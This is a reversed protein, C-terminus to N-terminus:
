WLLKVKKVHSNLMAVDAINIKGDNNIDAKNLEENTLIKVKKVHSNLMAVDAINVKGDGNIDGLLEGNIISYYSFHNTVFKAYKQNDIIEIKSDLLTYPNEINNPDINYVNVKGLFDSPVPLYVIVDGNPKIEQKGENMLKIDFIQYKGNNNKGPIKDIIEVLEKNSELSKDINNIELSVNRPIVNLSAEIKIGTNVDSKKVIITQNDMNCVVKNNKLTELTSVTNQNELDIYNNSLNINNCNCYNNEPNYSTVYKLDNIEEIKNYSLDIDVIENTKFNKLFVSLDSINNHSLNLNELCNGGGSRLDTFVPNIDSINNIDFINNYSLDINETSNCIDRIYSMDINNHSLNIKELFGINKLVSANKINNNSLDIESLYCIYKLCDIDTDNLELSSLDLPKNDMFYYEFDQNLDNLEGKTIEGDKNKDAGYEILRQKLNNNINLVDERESVTGYKMKYTYYWRFENFSMDGNNKSLRELYDFTERNATGEDLNIYNGGMDITVYVPLCSHKIDPGCNRLPTIDEIFNNKLFCDGIQNYIRVLPTVDTIKNNNAYITKLNKFKEIGELSIINKNNVNLEVINILDFETIKNNKDIDYEELLAKRFNEDPIEIINNKDGDQLNNWVISISINSYIYGYQNVPIKMSISSYNIGVKAKKPKVTIIKDNSNILIEDKNMSNENSFKINENYLKNGPTLSAKVFPSLEDFRLSKEEGELFDGVYAVIDNAQVKVNNCNLKQLLDVFQQEKKIREKYKVKSFEYKIFDNETIIKIKELGSIKNLELLNLLKSRLGNYEFVKLNQLKEIGRLDYINTQNSYNIMIDEVKLSNLNTLSFLKNINGFYGRLELNKIQKIQIIEDICIDGEHFIGLNELKPLKALEKINLFNPGRNEIYLNSDVSLTKLNSFQVLPKLDFFDNINRINIEELNKSNKLFDFKDMSKYLRYFTIKKINKLESLPTLDLETNNDNNYQNLTIEELNVAYKLSTINNINDNICISTIKSMENESIEGDNNLDYKPYTSEVLFKKFNEDVFNIKSSGDYKDIRYEIGNDIFYKITAANKEEDPNIPNNTLDVMCWVNEKKIINGNFPSIDSIKNEHLSVINLNKFKKIFEINNINCNSIELSEISNNEIFSINELNLISVQRLSLRSLNDLKAINNIDFLGNTLTIGKLNGLNAVFDFNIKQENYGYINLELYELNNFSSLRDINILNFGNFSFSELNCNVNNLDFNDSGLFLKKLKLLGKTFDKIDVNSIHLEELNVLQSIQSVDTNKDTHSIDLIRVNKAYELGKLSEIVFNEYNILDWFRLETIQAMEYETLKNNGDLDYKKMMVRKFNSDAFEVEKNIDGVAYTTWIFDFNFTYVNSNEDEYNYNLSFDFNGIYRKDIIIENGNCTIINSNDNYSSNNSYVSYDKYKGSHRNLINGFKEQMNIIIKEDKNELVGLNVKIRDINWSCDKNPLLNVKDEIEKQKNVVNELSCNLDFSVSGLSKFLEPYELDPVSNLNSINYIETRNIEGDNNTDYGNEILCKKFDQNKFSLNPINGNDITNISLEIVFSRNYYEDSVSISLRYVHKGLIDQEVEIINNEYTVGLFPMYEDSEIYCDNTVNSYYSILPAFDTLLNIKINEESYNRNGLDLNVKFFIGNKIEKNPIKDIKEKWLNQVELMNELNCDVIVSMSTLNILYEPYEITKVDNLNYINEMEKKSIEGDLNEDYGSNIIIEKFENSEFKLPMNNDIEVATVIPSFVQIFIMSILVLSIVKKIKM